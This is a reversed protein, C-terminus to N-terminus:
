PRITNEAFDNAALQRRAFYVFVIVHETKKVYFGYVRAVSQDYRFFMKFANMIRRIFQDAFHGHGAFFYSANDLVLKAGFAYIDAHVVARGGALHDEVGMDMDHGAVAFIGELEPVAPFVFRAALALREGGFKARGDLRIM